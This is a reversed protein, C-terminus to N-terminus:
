LMKTVGPVPVPYIGNADPKVPAEMDFSCEEPKPGLSFNSKMARDWTVEKGTYCSLQGMVAAMTSRVMYDGNNVPNGSRIANFLVQQEADYPSLRPGRPSRYRWKTQGKIRWQTLVCRGKTGLVISSFNRYCGTQARCFAYLRVGRAYEYIVSHHDFASGWAEDTASSRGGLGHCKIPALEGMAWNARDLGHILGQNVDDGSLWAFSAWNSFQHQIETFGPTHRRGTYFGRLCNEEVAVIDGIAGDRIRRITEQYGAEYRSYLGSVISLKKQKALECAAILDRVGPPDIAHPKEVFVHKGAEVAAKTYAGHFKPACAILVADCSEIAKRYGDFGMFCHADDVAVQDPKKEQLSRRRGQVRDAFLDCMAVLRVGRDVDMANMAAGAGRGGCGILGVRIADSGAAYARVGLAAASAVAASSRLFDRRTEGEAV